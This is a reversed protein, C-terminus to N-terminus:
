ACWGSVFQSLNPIFLHLTLLSYHIHCSLSRSVSCHTVIHCHSSLSPHTITPIFLHPSLLFPHLPCFLSHSVSCYMVYAGCCRLGRRVGGVRVRISGRRARRHAFLARQSLQSLPHTINPIFLHPPLLSHHIPCSLSRSVSCIHRLM